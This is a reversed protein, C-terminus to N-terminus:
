HAAEAAAEMYQEEKECPLVSDEADATEARTFVNEVSEALAPNTLEAYEKPQLVSCDGIVYYRFDATVVVACIGSEKWLEEYFALSRTLPMCFGATSYADALAGANDTKLPVLVTVSIVGNDSPKGTAANMIHAYIKGDYIYFRYNDASTSVAVDKLGIFYLAGNRSAGGTVLSRPNELVATYGLGSEDNQKEGMLVSNSMVSFTGSVEGYKEELFARVCDSMYGKAIGGFDIRTEANDKVVTFDESLRIDAFSSNKLAKEIEAASPEPRSEHYRGEFEPTFGWLKSLNYLSPSFAGGTKEYVDKCLRLLGYASAGVVIEEGAEASNLRYVDGSRKETSVEDEIKNLLVGIEDELAERERESIRTGEAYLNESLSFEVFYEGKEAACGYLILLVLCLLICFCRRM